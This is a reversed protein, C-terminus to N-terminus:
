SRDKTECESLVPVRERDPEVVLADRPEAAVRPVEAVDAVAKGVEGVDTDVLVVERALIVAPLLLDPGRARERAVESGQSAARM